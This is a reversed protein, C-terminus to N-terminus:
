SGATKTANTGCVQIKAATATTQNQLGQFATGAKMAQSEVKTLGVTLRDAAKTTNNFGTSVGNAFGQIKPKVREAVTELNVLAQTLKDVDAAAKVASSTDYIVTYTRDPM